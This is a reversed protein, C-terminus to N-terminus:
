RPAATQTLLRKLETLEAQLAEIARQQKQLENLLLAPLKHYAVGDIVGDRDTTALEPFTAAVEEAILGFDIPKSGDRMPQKYRFTVPRLSLLRTSADGMDAVDEKFRRSSVVSGFEGDTGIVVTQTATAPTQGRIGAVFTNVQTGQVGIKITNTDAVAGANGIHINNSGTTVSSGAFAGVAVNDAGVTLAYGAQYGLLVNDGGFTVNYGSLYGVATNTSGTATFLAAFGVGVNYGGVAVNGLASQGVAVNSPGSTLASLATSGVAVNQQATTANLLAAQGVGVNNAGTTNARMAASGIATNGAGTSAQLAQSGLAVSSSGTTSARCEVLGAADITVVYTGSPCYGYVRLQLQSSNVDAAGITGDALAASGVSGAALQAAGISGPAIAFAPITPAPRPSGAIQGNFAFTGSNGASDSWSGGLTPFTLRADVHVALGGPVTVISLGLGITGDPNQAALGVLPARQAAGCQNDFGDLTYVGGNQTVNVTVVNCFPQLQWSFTGIPQATANGVVSLGSAAVWGAMAWRKLM